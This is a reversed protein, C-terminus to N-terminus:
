LVQEVGKCVERHQGTALGWEKFTEQLEHITAFRMGECAGVGYWFARIPRSATIRPDLQRITGAAANRPNAFVKHGKAAQERNLKEFDKIPFIAEGRVEILRPPAHTKLRLPISRITRVNQTVDEGTTGDGRTAARALMGD